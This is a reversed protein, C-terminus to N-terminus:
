VDQTLKSELTKATRTWEISLHKNAAPEEPYASKFSRNGIPHEYQMNIDHEAGDEKERRAQFKHTGTSFLCFLAINVDLDVQPSWVVGCPEQPILCNLYKFHSYTFSGTTHTLLPVLLSLIYLYWYHSNTLTGATDLDVHPSWVLGCPEQFVLPVLLTLSYLYWYHSHTFAGTTEPIKPYM